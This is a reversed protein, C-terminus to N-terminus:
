HPSTFFGGPGFLALRDLVSTTISAAIRAPDRLRAAPHESGCCRAFCRTSAIMRIESSRYNQLDQYPRFEGVVCRDTHGRALDLDFKSAGLPEGYRM